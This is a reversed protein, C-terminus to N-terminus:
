PWPVARCPLSMPVAHYKHILITRGCVVHPRDARTQSRGAVVRFEVFTTVLLLGIESANRTNGNIVRVKVFSVASDSFPLIAAHSTHIAAPLLM